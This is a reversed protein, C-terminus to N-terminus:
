EARLSNSPNSKAAYYSQGFVALFAIIAVLLGAAIFIMWNVEVRYAFNNLWETVFYNSIPVAILFAILILTFYIRSLLFLIKPITAGFAKRIGIEKTRLEVSYAALGYLGLCSIFIALASFIKFITGMNNESIYLNNLRNDLFDYTFLNGPAIEKVFDEIFTLSEQVQDGVLKVVITGSWQPRYTLVLPEIPNHLSAFNLDKMVGVIKGRTGMATNTADVGIPNELELMEVVKENVIFAGSSDTVPDFNRGEILEIGMTPIFGQDSRFFRMFGRNNSDYEKGDPLLFEVSSINGIMASTSGANIIGPYKKLEDYIYDRKQHFINAFNGYTYIAVVNDKDFGLNKNRFYDLQDSIFITSSIMFIAIVFQLVILVKRANSLSSRPNQNVKISEIIKFGSIFYAPYGGALLGIIGVLFVIAIIQNLQFLESVGYNQNAIQNFIPLM